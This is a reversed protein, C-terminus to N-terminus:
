PVGYRGLNQPELYNDNGQWGEKENMQCINM